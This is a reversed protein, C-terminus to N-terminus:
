GLVGCAAVYLVWCCACLALLALGVLVKSEQRPKFPACGEPELPDHKMEAVSMADLERTRARMRGVYAALEPDTGIAAVADDISQFTRGNM